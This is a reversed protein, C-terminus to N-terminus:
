RGAEDRDPRAAADAAQVARDVLLAGGVARAPRLPDVVHDAARTRSRASRAPVRAARPVRRRPVARDRAIRHARLRRAAARARALDRDPEVPGAPPGPRRAAARARVLVAAAERE